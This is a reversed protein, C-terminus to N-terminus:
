VDSRPARRNPPDCVKTIRGASVDPSGRTLQMLARPPLKSSGTLFDEGRVARAQFAEGASLRPASHSAAHSTQTPGARFHSISTPRQNVFPSTVPLWRRRYDPLTFAIAPRRSDQLHLSEVLAGNDARSADPSASDLVNLLRAIPLFSPM